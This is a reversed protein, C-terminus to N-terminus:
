IKSVLSVVNKHQLLRRQELLFRFFKSPLVRGLIITKGHNNRELFPLREFNKYIFKSARSQMLEATEM